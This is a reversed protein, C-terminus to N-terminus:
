MKILILHDSYRRIDDIRHGCLFCDRLYAKIVMLLNAQLTVNYYLVYVASYNDTAQHKIIIYPGTLAEITASQGWVDGQRRSMVLDPYYFTYNKPLEDDGKLRIIDNGISYLRQIDNPGLFHIISGPAVPLAPLDMKEIADYFPKGYGNDHNHIFLLGRVEHRESTDVSYKTRWESSEKACEVTMCLSKLASRLRTSNISDKAYSKFDTHLYIRKGLYPDEYFFVVDGPHTDKPKKGDGM